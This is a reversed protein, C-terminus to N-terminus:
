NDEYRVKLAIIALICIGTAAFCIWWMNRVIAVANTLVMIGAFIRVYLLDLTTFPRKM